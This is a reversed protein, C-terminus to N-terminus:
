TQENEANIYKTIEEVELVINEFGAKVARARLEEKLIFKQKKFKHLMKSLIVYRKVLAKQKKDYPLLNSDLDM